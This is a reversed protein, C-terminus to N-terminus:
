QYVIDTAEFWFGRSDDEALVANQFRNLGPVNPDIKIYWIGDFQFRANVSVQAFTTKRM